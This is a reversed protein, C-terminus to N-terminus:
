NVRNPDNGPVPEGHEALLEAGKQDARLRTREIEHRESNTMAPATERWIAEFEKLIDRMDTFEGRQIRKEHEALLREFQEMGESKAM